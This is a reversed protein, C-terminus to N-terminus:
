LGRPADWSLHPPVKLTYLYIIIDGYWPHATSILFIREDLFSDKHIEDEDLSPLDSMLEVFVLSKKLKESVFELDFEQLIAIWKNYKGRDNM